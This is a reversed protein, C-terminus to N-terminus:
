PRAGIEPPTNAFLAALAPFSGAQRRMEVLVTTHPLKTIEQQIQDMQAKDGTNFAHNWEQLYTKFNKFAAKRHTPLEAGNLEFLDRTFTGRMKSIDDGIAVFFGTSLDLKLFDLPDELRLDILAHTGTPAPLNTPRSRDFQELVGAIIVAYKDKKRDQNCVACAYLYNKWDFCQEPYHRKPRMHEIDRHRDRECYYCNGSPANLNTRIENWVKSKKSSFLRNAETIREAYTGLAM